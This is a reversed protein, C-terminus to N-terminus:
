RRHAVSLGIWSTQDIAGGAVWHDGPQSHMAFGMRRLGASARLEFLPSFVFAVTGELEVGDAAAHPFRDAASLTGIALARLYALRGLLALGPALVWRGDAGASLLQYRVDPAASSTEAGTSFSQLAYALQPTVRQGPRGLEYGLGVLWGMVRTPQAADTGAVHSKIGVGYEFAGAFRLPGLSAPSGLLPGPRLTMALETAFAQSLQYSPLESLNQTYSFSRSFMRGGATVEFLEPAAAAAEPGTPESARATVQAQAPPEVAAASVGDERSVRALLSRVRGSAATALQSELKDLRRNALVFRGIATGTDGRRVTLRVRWGARREVDASVFARVDLARGVTGFEGDDRLQVGQRRAEAAVSFDPVVYYRTMLGTEVAGQIRNAEPGQFAGIAVRESPGAAARAPLVAGALLLAGCIITRKM